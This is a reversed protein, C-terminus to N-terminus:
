LAREVRARRHGGLCPHRADRVSGDRRVDCRHVAGRARLHGEGRASRGSSGRARVSSM